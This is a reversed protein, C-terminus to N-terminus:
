NLLNLVSPKDLPSIEYVSISQIKQHYIHLNTGTDLEPVPLGRPVFVTLIRSGDPAIVMLIRTVKGKVPKDPNYNKGHYRWGVLQFGADFDASITKGFAEKTYSEFKTPSDCVIQPEFDESIQRYVNKADFIQKPQGPNMYLFLGTTIAILAAYAVWRGLSAKPRDPKLVLPTTPETAIEVILENIAKLADL